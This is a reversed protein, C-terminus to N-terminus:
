EWFIDERSDQHSSEDMEWSTRGGETRLHRLQQSTRHQSFGFEQPLKSLPSSDVNM